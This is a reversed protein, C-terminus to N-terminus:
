RIVEDAIMLLHPPLTLGLAQATRQNITLVFQDPQAVPLDGPKAGRLIKHVYDGCRRWNAEISAGYNMLGGARAFGDHGTVAPLRHAMALEAIRFRHMHFAVSQPMVLAQTGQRRAEDFAPVLDDPGRVPLTILTLGLRAAAEEHERRDAAARPGQAEFLLAVRKLGPVTDVLLQLRKSNVEPSMISLGTVNGGPQALSAVLGDAVPDGSVAIVIPVARTADRAIRASQSTGAVIVDPPRQMMEAVLRPLDQSPPPSAIVEVIFDRGEVQGLERIRQRLLDISPHPAPLPFLVVVRRPQPQAVVLQGGLMSVLGPLALVLGLGARRKM